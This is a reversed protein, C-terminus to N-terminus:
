FVTVLGIRPAIKEDAFRDTTTQLLDTCNRLDKAHGLGMGQADRDTLMYPVM